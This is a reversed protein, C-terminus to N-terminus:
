KSKGGKGDEGDHGDEGHDCTCAYEQHECTPCDSLNLNFKERVPKGDGKPKITVVTPFDNGEPLVNSSVLAGDKEVMKLMTPSKRDGCIITVKQGAVPVMKGDDDVFTIKVKRDETVFFEAHPEIEMIMKGNNPGTVAHEAHEKHDHDKDKDQALLPAPAMFGCLAAALLTKNNLKM